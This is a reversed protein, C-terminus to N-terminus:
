APATLDLTLLSKPTLFGALALAEEIQHKLNRNQEILQKWAEAEEADPHEIARHFRDHTDVSYVWVDRQHFDMIQIRLKLHPYNASGLRFAYGPTGPALTSLDLAVSTSLPAGPNFDELPSEVAIDCYPRLREPVTECGGPYALEMFIRCAQAFDQAVLAQM